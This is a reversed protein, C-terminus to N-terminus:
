VRPNVRWYEKENNKSSQKKAKLMKRLYYIVVTLAVLILIVVIVVAAILGAREANPSSSFLQFHECRSGKYSETCVCTLTDMSPIKYCIGGNMCYSAEKGSCPEGHDAMM